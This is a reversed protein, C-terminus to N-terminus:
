QPAGSVTVNTRNGAKDLAYTTAVGDNSGGSHAVGVLRGLADYSYSTVGSIQTLAVAYGGANDGFCCDNINAYLAGSAAATFVYSDGMVFYDGHGGPSATFTGLLAGYLRQPGGIGYATPGSSPDYDLGDPYFAAYPPAFSATPKGIPTFTLGQGGNCGTCLNAIGGATVRYTKGAVVNGVFIPAASTTGVNAVETLTVAYGGANDGECCDNIKAYLAGSAGAVFMHAAGLVFYDGHSGPSATFTGLLAGYLRQPGGIGYATPGSSPDYDLGNPYFAAYPPAFASTPRGDPTFNLGQGGNCGTCLDARGRATVRYAKGAVVNGIFTPAVSAANVTAAQAPRDVSLLLAVAGIALFLAHRM